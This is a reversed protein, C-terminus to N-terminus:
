IFLEPDDEPHGIVDFQKRALNITRGDVDVSYRLEERKKTIILSVKVVTGLKNVSFGGRRGASKITTIRVLTGLKITTM